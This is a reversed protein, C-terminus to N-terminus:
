FSLFGLSALKSHLNVIATCKRNPFIADIRLFHLFSFWCSCFPIIIYFKFSNKPVCIFFFSVMQDEEGQNVYKVDINDIFVSGTSHSDRTNSMQNTSETEM